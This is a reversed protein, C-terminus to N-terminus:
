TGYFSPMTAQTRNSSVKELVEKITFAIRDPEQKEKFDQQIKIGGNFTNNTINSGHELEENVKQDKNWQWMMAEKADKHIKAIGEGHSMLGLIAIFTYAMGAKMVDYLTLLFKAVTKIIESFWNIKNAIGEVSAIGMISAFIESLGEIADEYPKNLMRLSAFLNTTAGILKPSNKLVEISAGLKVKAMARSFAQFIMLFGAFLGPLKAITAFMGGRGVALNGIGVLGKYIGGIGKWGLRLSALPNTIIKIIGYIPVMIAALAGAATGLGGIALTLGITRLTVGAFVGKLVKFGAAMNAGPSRKTLALISMVLGGIGRGLSGVVGTNLRNMSGMLGDTAVAFWKFRTRLKGFIVPVWEFIERTHSVLVVFGAWKAASFADSGLNRLQMLNILMNKPKDMFGEVFKALGQIIQRGEKNIFSLVDNALPVIIKTVLDGIPKLVSDYGTFINKARQFVGSMTKTRAILEETNTSFKELAKNLVDVRKAASLANFGKTTKVNAGQFAEPAEGLLRRFLTDGMSASGEVSRMLQGQVQFADIGLAPASKLLNRSMDRAVKLNDGALGKPILLGAVGKFAHLFSNEPLAFKQADHSIEKMIKASISLQNNFGGVGQLNNSNAGIIKVLDLQSQKFKDSVQVAKSLVGLIGGGAGSFSMVMNMGLASVTNIATGASRSVADLKSTIKDLGSEAAEHFVFEAAITFVPAIAM